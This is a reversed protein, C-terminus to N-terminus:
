GRRWPRWSEGRVLSLHPRASKQTTKKEQSVTFPFNEDPPQCCRTLAPHDRDGAWSFQTQTSDGDGSPCGRTFAGPQHKGHVSVHRHPEPMGCGQTGM